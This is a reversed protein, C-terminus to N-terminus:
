NSGSGNLEHLRGDRLSFHVTAHATLAADHTVVLVTTEFRSRVEQLLSIVGEGNARDLNGTPEDALIVKPNNMLARAIAARQLEGGSIENPLRKALAAIGLIELCEAARTQAIRTETGLLHAPIAVNQELTLTPLLNFFQFVIGIHRLRFAALEETSKATITTGDIVVNGSDARELGGIINLLTSKGSGSPGTLVAFSNEPVSLSVSRLVPESGKSHQYSKSINEVEIM